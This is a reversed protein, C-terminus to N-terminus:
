DQVASRRARLLWANAAEYDPRDALTTAAYAAEFEAHLALRWHDLDNWAIEGRKIALLRDRQDDVRLPVRRERLATIGSLLLRILHMAHKWKVAGRNRLDSELKRFQSMVYGNYTQYILKSLFRERIALLERMLPTAHEILPSYLCELVNPNAKLALVLFKQVEWFCEQAADNELQEPVGALSWHREAPPLYVGRLDVDSSESDLGYARSGVICRFIVHRRLDHEDITSAAGDEAALQGLGAQERQMSKLPALEDRHLQALTTDAFRVTYSHQADSPSKVIVAVAGAPHARGGGVPVVAIRTVIQTGPSLIM